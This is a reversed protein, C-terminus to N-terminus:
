QPLARPRNAVVYIADGGIGCLKSLLKNLRTVLSTFAWPGIVLTDIKTCFFLAGNQYRRFHAAVERLSHYRWDPSEKGSLNTYYAFILVGGEKLHRLLKATVEDRTAFQETNYLSCSRVFICDFKAPFVATNIDAVGFTVGAKGYLNTAMRIGVESMDIGHVRMGCEHFLHSFFGQGCGVDLVLAGPQLKSYSVLSSIYRAYLWERYRFYNPQAYRANYGQTKDTM